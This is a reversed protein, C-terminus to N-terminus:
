PRISGLSFQAVSTSSPLPRVPACPVARAGAPGERARHRVAGHAAIVQGCRSHVASTMWSVGPTARGHDLDDVLQQVGALTPAGLSELVLHGLDASSRPRDEDAEAVVLEAGLGGLEALAVLVALQEVVQQELDERHGALRRLAREAHPGEVDLHQSADDKVLAVDGLHLGALALGEDRRHGHVEVREGALAHMEDGDVVVEGLAVRFPHALDVAEEAELDAHDLGIHRRRLPAGLVVGVDRVAGVGLEAEVVQAVVHGHAALM